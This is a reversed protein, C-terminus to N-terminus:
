WVQKVSKEERRCLCLQEPVGAKHSINILGMEEYGVNPFQTKISYRFSGNRLLIAYFAVDEYKTLQLKKM